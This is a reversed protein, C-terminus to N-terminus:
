CACGTTLRVVNKIPSQCRQLLSKKSQAGIAEEVNAGISTGSRVLQKSLVFEKRNEVLYKYLNIIHLAFSYSKDRAPNPKENRM